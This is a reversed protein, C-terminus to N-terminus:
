RAPSPELARASKHSIRRSPLPSALAPLGHEHLCDHRVLISKVTWSVIAQAQLGSGDAAPITRIPWILVSPIEIIERASAEPANVIRVNSGVTRHTATSGSSHNSTLGLLWGGPKRHRPVHPEIATMSSALFAFNTEAYRSPSTKQGVVRSRPNTNAPCVNTLPGKRTAQDEESFVPPAGCYKWRDMGSDPRRERWSVPVM